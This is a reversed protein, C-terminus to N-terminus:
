TPLREAAALAAGLIGADPGTAAHLIPLDRHVDSWLHRRAAERFTNWFQGQSIGLGGGILLAQPDLVNVLLAVASGLATAGSKIVQQARPDGADAARLVEVASYASGGLELFRAVLGPGSAVAELSLGTLQGCHDCWHSTPSSALTGTAGHAGLHPRGQLMLCSAIGTGVTVYLFNGLGRGAGWAGEARAAARVDAEVVVPGWDGLRDAMSGTDWSITHRSLPLGEPSVLECLSIGVASPRPTGEVSTLHRILELVSEMVARSGREPQTPVQHRSLLRGSPWSVLGGAIKTGGIDVGLLTRAESTM